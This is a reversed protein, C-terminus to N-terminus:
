GLRTQCFAACGLAFDYADKEEEFDEAGVTNGIPDSALSRYRLGAVKIYHEILDIERKTSNAIGFTAAFEGFRLEETGPLIM